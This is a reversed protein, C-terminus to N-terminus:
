CSHLDFCIENSHKKWNSQLEQEYSILNWLVPPEVGTESEKISSVENVRKLIIQVDEETQKIGKEYSDTGQFLRFLGM